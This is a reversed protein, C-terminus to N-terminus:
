RLLARRPLAEAAWMRARADSELDAFPSASMGRDAIPGDVDWAAHSTGSYEAPM